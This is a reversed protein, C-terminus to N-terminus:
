FYIWQFYDCVLDICNNCFNIQEYHLSLLWCVIGEPFKGANTTTNQQQKQQQKGQGLILTGQDTQVLREQMNALLSEQPKNTMVEGQLQECFVNTCKLLHMDM